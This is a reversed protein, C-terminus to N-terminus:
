QLLKENLPSPIRGPRESESSHGNVRRLVIRILCKFAILYGGLRSVHSDLQLDWWSVLSVGRERGRRRGANHIIPLHQFSLCSEVSRQNERILMNDSILGEDSEDDGSFAIANTYIYVNIKNERM